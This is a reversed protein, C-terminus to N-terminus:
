GAVSIKYYHLIIRLRRAWTTKAPPREKEMSSIRDLTIGQVGFIGEAQYTGFIRLLENMMANLEPYSESKRLRRSFLEVEVPTSFEYTNLRVQRNKVESAVEKVRIYYSRFNDYAFNDVQTQHQRSLVTTIAPNAGIAPDTISWNAKIFDRVLNELSDPFDSNKGTLQWLIGTPIAALSYVYRSSLSVRGQFNYRYTRELSVGEGIRYRYTRSLTLLKLLSYIYSTPKQILKLLPYRYTRTSVVPLYINYKYIRSKTVANLIPYRYTRILTPVASTLNYRYLRSLSLKTAIAYGYIRPASLRRVINYKYVSSLIVHALASLNYKYIRSLTVANAISYRFIRAASLKALLSYRIHSSASVPITLNYKYARSLSLRVALAYRYIRANAIRNAINYKYVRAQAARAIISYRYLRSVSVAKYITYKYVQALKAAIAINYRFTKTTTVANAINYRYIRSSQLTSQLAYRFIKPVSITRLINYKTISPVSLRGTLNYLYSRSLSVASAINYRYIPALSALALVNYRYVQSFGPSLRGIINYKQISAKSVRTLAAGFALGQPTQIFSAHNSVSTNKVTTVTNGDYFFTDTLASAIGQTIEFWIEFCLVDGQQVGLVQNGAFTTSQVREATTIDVTSASNGDVIDGVKASTSPRWVYAVVRVPANTGTVPFRSGAANSTSAFNYTWTQATISTVNQLTESVFRSFYYRQLATTANSTLVLSTQATGIITTMTRNVTEADVVKNATLTSRETTPLNSVPNALAHFYLRTPGVPAVPNLHYLYVQTRSVIVKLDYLYTRALSVRYSAASVNYLYTVSLSIRDLAVAGVIPTFHTHSPQGVVPM